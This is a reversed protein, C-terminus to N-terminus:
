SPSHSPVQRQALGHDLVTAGRQPVRARLSVAAGDFWLDFALTEGPYVPATFRAEFHALRSADRDCAERVVAAAAMGWTCLGHLIPRDFGAATAFAPDVHLPNRDGTLRYFMAQEPRVDIEVTRDPARQPLPHPDPGRGAPGGFGGDGRAFVTSLLTALPADNGPERLVTEALLVAGRGPGKDHCAAIRFASRVTGSAPLRRHLTVRQEGHVIKTIDLGAREQWTDEWAVVAAQTPMSQLGREFVFALDAPMERGMGVSLNYLLTDRETWHFEREPFRLRMLAAHDIAM